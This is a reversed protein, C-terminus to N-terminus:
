RPLPWQVKSHCFCRPWGNRPVTIGNLLPLRYGSVQHDLCMSCRQSHFSHRDSLIVTRYSPLPYEPLSINIDKYTWQLDWGAIHYTSIIIIVYKYDIFKNCKRLFIHAQEPSLLFIDGAYMTYCIQPLAWSSRAKGPNTRSLANVANHTWLATKTTM